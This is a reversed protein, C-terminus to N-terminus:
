WACECTKYIVYTLNLADQTKRDSLVDTAFLPNITVTFIRCTFCRYYKQITRLKAWKTNKESVGCGVEVSFEPDMSQTNTHLM